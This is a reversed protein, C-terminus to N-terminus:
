GSRCQAGGTALTHLCFWSLCHVYLTIKLQMRAVTTATSLCYTNCIRLRHTRNKGWNDPVSIEDTRCLTTMQGLEATGYKEMNNWLHCLKQFIFQIKTKEVVTKQFMEWELLFEALYLKHLYMPRWTFFQNNKNSKLLVQTNEVSKLFIRLYCMANLNTWLSGLHEM